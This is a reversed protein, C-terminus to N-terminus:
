RGINQKNGVYNVIRQYDEIYDIEAWFLPSIDRAFLNVHDCQSYLITEWWTQYNEDDIMNNLDESFKGLYSRSIKAAGVYECTREEVTLDKGYKKIIGNQCVFFYDGESIRTYDALLTIEHESSILAELIKEEFYVDANALLIDDHVALEERAFWLSAISNTVRYFPNSYFKVGLGELDKFFLEQQYGVIVVVEIGARQLMEVTYRILSKSGYVPLLSKPKSIERSIRTGIGAAMMIM